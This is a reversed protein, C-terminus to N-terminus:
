KNSQKTGAKKRIKIKLHKEAVEITTELAAVKLNATSLARELDKIKRILLRSSDTEQMFPMSDKYDEQVLRRLSYKNIWNYITRQSFGYKKIAASPKILGDQIEQVVKMQHGESFKKYGKVRKFKGKNESM